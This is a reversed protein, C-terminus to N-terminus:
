VPNMIPVQLSQLLLDDLAFCFSALLKAYPSPFYISGALELGVYGAGAVPVNHFPFSTYDPGQTGGNKIESGVPAVSYIFEM